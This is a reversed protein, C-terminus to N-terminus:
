LGEQGHAPQGWARELVGEGRGGVGWARGTRHRPAPPVCGSSPPAPWTPAPTPSPTRAPLPRNLPPHPDPMPRAHQLPLLHLQPSAAWLFHEPKCPTDLTM